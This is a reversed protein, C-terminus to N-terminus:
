NTELMMGLNGDLRSLVLYFTELQDRTIGSTMTSVAHTIMENVHAMINKGAPTLRIHKKYKQHDPDTCGEEGYLVYGRQKLEATVRSIFAKDVGCVKTLEAPTMGGPAKDLCYMYMLHMGRLGFKELKENKYKQINKLITETALSFRIFGDQYGEDSTIRDTRIDQM